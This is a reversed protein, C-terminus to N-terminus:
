DRAAEDDQVPIALPSAHGNWDAGQFHTPSRIWDASTRCHLHVRIPRAHADRQRTVTQLLKWHLSHLSSTHDQTHIIPTVTYASPRLPQTNIFSVNIGHSCILTATPSSRCPVNPVDSGLGPLVPLFTSYRSSGNM